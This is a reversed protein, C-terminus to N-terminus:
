EVYYDNVFRTLDIDFRTDELKNLPYGITLYHEFLM